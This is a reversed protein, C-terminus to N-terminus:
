PSAPALLMALTLSALLYGMSALIGMPLSVNLAHRLIHGTVALNWVTILLLPLPTVNPILILPLAFLGIIAGTVALASLTQTFRQPLQRVTLLFYTFAALTLTDALGYLVNNEFSHTLVSLAISTAAYALLSLTLASQSAPLDQPGVRLLCIDMYLKFLKLLRIVKQRTRGHSEPCM